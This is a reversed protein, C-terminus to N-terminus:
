KKKRLLNHHTHIKITYDRSLKGFRARSVTHFRGLDVELRAPFDLGQDHREPHRFPFDIAVLSRQARVESSPVGFCRAGRFLSRWARAERGAAAALAGSGRAMTPREERQRSEGEGGGGGQVGGRTQESM